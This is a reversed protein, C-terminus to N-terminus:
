IRIKSDPVKESHVKIKGKQLCDFCTHVQGNEERVKGTGHCKPCEEELM